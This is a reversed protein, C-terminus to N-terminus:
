TTMEVDMEAIRPMSERRVTEWCYSLKKNERGNHVRVNKNLRLQVVTRGSIMSDADKEFSKYAHPVDMPADRNYNRFIFYMIEAKVVRDKRALWRKLRDSPLM